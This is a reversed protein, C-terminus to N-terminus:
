KKMFEEPKLVQPTIIIKFIAGKFWSLENQRVGVSTIGETLPTLTIQGVLEKNGNVYTTLKGNDVTYALHYWEGLPHLLTSDILTCAQQDSKIFGDFYWNTETARLELLVRSGTITGCHFFRQEFNGGNDPRFIAEITFQSLGSLPMSPIFLGDNIGNFELANGYKCNIIEPAGVIKLNESTSKALDCLLWETASITTNQNLTCILLYGLFIAKVLNM